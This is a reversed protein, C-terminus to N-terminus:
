GEGRRIPVVKETTGESVEFGGLKALDLEWYRSKTPTAGAIGRNLNRGEAWVKIAGAETLLKQVKRYDMRKEACWQRVYEPRLWLENCDRVLRGAWRPPRKPERTIITPRAGFRLDGISETVTVDFGVDAMLSAILDSEDGLSSRVNSRLEALAKDMWDILRERDFHTLNLKATIAQAAVVSALVVGWFREERSLNFRENVSRLVKACLAQLAGANKALYKAYFLGAHGHHRSLESFVDDADSKSLDSVNNFSIEFVRRMEPERGAGDAGLTSILSRNGSTLVLTQWPERQARLGGSKNLRDKQVGQSIAYALDSLEKSDINSVEDIAFPLTGMAGLREFLANVTGRKHATSLKVPDGYISIAANQATTKGQGSSYSVASVLVGRYDGLFKVLPAAFGCLVMFQYQEQGPRNYAADIADVWGQLSGKCSFSSQYEKMASSLVAKSEGDKSFRKEGLLFDDDNWGMRDSALSDDVNLRIENIFSSLYSKMHVISEIVVGISGFYAALDRNGTAIAQMPINIEEPVGAPTYRTARLMAQSNQRADGVSRTVELPYILERCITTPQPVGDEDLVMTLLVTGNFRYNKAIGAPLKPLRRPGDSPVEAADAASPAEDSEARSADVPELAPEGVPEMRRPKVTEAQEPLQVGLQIPSKIKGKVPCGDCKGFCEFTKCTAPGAAWRDLKDQTEYRDYGVHGQSWEHAAEDGEITHKILGLSARWFPEEVDGMVTQFHRIAQCKEAIRYISSPPYEQEYSLESNLASKPKADVVDVDHRKVAGVVARIFDAPELDPQDKVVRVSKPHATNKFNTAGVPRLISALDATRTPDQHVGLAALLAKMRSAVKVWTSAEIDQTLTWYCHIGYGSSVLMPKPLGARECAAYIDACADRQTAYPKEEGCDLDVWFARCWGANDAIRVAEVDKMEGTKKDRRRVTVSPEVYSACAHFVTRGEDSWEVVHEAMDELANFQHHLFGKYPAPRPLALIKIGKRPIIRRLFEITDM